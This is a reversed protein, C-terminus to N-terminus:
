FGALPDVGIVIPHFCLLTIYAAAVLGLRKWGIGSWDAVLRGKLMAAFPLASGRPWRAKAVLANKVAALVAIAAMAGFLLVTRDEGVNLLHLLAWLLTGLSGPITTITYIGRLAGRAPTTLRGIVLLIAVPMGAVAALRAGDFPGYLWHGSGATRYSWLVLGLALTSLLGYGAYYGRSGFAAVLRGRVAPATPLLHTAILFLAALTLALM